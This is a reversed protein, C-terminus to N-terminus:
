FRYGIAARAGSVWDLGEGFWLVGETRLVARRSLDWEAGIRGHLLRVTEVRDVHGFPPETFVTHARQVGLGGGGIVHARADPSSRFLLSVTGTLQSFDHQERGFVNTVRGGHLDGDLVVRPTLHFAVGGGVIPAAGMESDAHGLSAGGAHGFVVARPEQAAAPAAVLGALTVALGWAICTRMM